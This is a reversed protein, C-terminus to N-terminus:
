ARPIILGHSIYHALRRTENQTRYALVTGRRWWAKKFAGDDSRVLSSTSVQSEMPYPRVSRFKIGFRWAQDFAHDYPVIMPLLRELYRAGAHRNLLYGGAGTNRTVCAVLKYPSVLRRQPVPTGSHRGNLKVVDWDQPVKLLAEIVAPFEPAFAADDELILCATADSEMFRRIAKFHSLYCGAENPRLRKGHCLDYGRHDIGQWPGAGLTQGDIASVREFPLGIKGLGEAMDRLRDPRRDLNIVLALLGALAPSAGPEARCPTAVDM